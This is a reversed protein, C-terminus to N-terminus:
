KSYLKGALASLELSLLKDKLPRGADDLGRARYYDALMLKMDPVSGATGGEKYPTLVRDPLRDDKASIGMLNGLGRKLIWIRDGCEMMEQLDYDFGTTTRLAGLLHTISLSAMAFICIVAANCLMGLNESTITTVAKNQSTKKEYGGMLGIEPYATNGETYQVMHQLHCAGRVSMVYALGLAHSARPDHMPLELGKTEVTFSSANRGIREAARKSGEALIDGFGQRQAIKDIMRFVADLNGWKLELGDSDGKGIIGNEYCDIAFAITAGCSITDLGYRNCLENIKIIGALDDIMLLSGFSACTEYEPGPGEEIQYPGDAVKVVRKCAIPCAYCAATRTLYKQSLVPGSIKSAVASNEGLSWNRAPLDGTRMGGVMAINTGHAKFFGTLPSGQVKQLVEQRVAQYEAPQAPEVTGTGRVAVAKLKKAGMVAGLGCRGAFNAKDNAVAAYRVLNEGAIGITIVKVEREGGLRQKLLDTTEYTDQGWLDAADRIEVKADDIFLYVPQPSAGVVAIGDYGAFKLEPGFNGGCCSEGWIGTLPSKACISFRGSGPLNTGTLPGTLIFLTNKDSLPEVHPAVRDLFLSAGLGSGGIFKRLTDEAVSSHSIAGTTLNVELIKGKYSSM